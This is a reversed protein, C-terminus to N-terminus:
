AKGRRKRWEALDKTVPGAPLRGITGSHKKLESPHLLGAHALNRIAVAEPEFSLESGSDQVPATPPSNSAEGSARSFRARKRREVQLPIALEEGSPLSGGDGM